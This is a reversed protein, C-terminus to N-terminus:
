TFAFFAGTAITNFYQPTINVLMAIRLNRAEEQSESLSQKMQGYETQCSFNIKTLNSGQVSGSRFFSYCLQLLKHLFNMDSGWHTNALNM